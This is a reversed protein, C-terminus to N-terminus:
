QPKSIAILFIKWTSKFETVLNFSYQSLAWLNVLGQTMSFFMQAIADMDLDPRIVGENVGADLINKIRSNYKKIVEYIKNNLKKDGLSIIEAIVQFGVGRRQEIASIHEMMINELVELSQLKDTHNKEIDGIMTQEIDDVLFSLIDRKSKFHRYIAGESVGIEKAMRKVTVHESGYKVILKRAALVIEKQRVLTDKRVQM